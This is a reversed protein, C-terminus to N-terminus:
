NPSSLDVHWCCTYKFFGSYSEYSKISNRRNFFVFITVMIVFPFETMQIHHKIDQKMETCREHHLKIIHGMSSLFIVNILHILIGRM